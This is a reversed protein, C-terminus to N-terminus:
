TECSGSSRFGHQLDDLINSEQLHKMLSSAIIHECLKCCICTLSISRYNKPDHRDGKKYVPCVNALKWDSPITGSFLSKQFLITLIPAIQKENKLSEVMSKMQAKPKKLTSIELSSKLAVSKYTSTKRRPIPVQVKILYQPTQSLLLSKRFSNILSTQSPTHTVRRSVM